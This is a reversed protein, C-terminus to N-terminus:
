NEKEKQYSVYDQELAYLFEKLESKNVDLAELIRMVTNLECKLMNNEYINYMQRSVKLKSAVEDQTMLKKGRFSKIMRNTNM